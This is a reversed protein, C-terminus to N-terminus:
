FGVCTTYSSRCRPPGMQSTASSLPFDETFESQPQVVLLFGLVGKLAAQIGFEAGFGEELQELHVGVFPVQLSREVDGDPEGGVMM